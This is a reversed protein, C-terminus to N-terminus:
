ASDNNRNASVIENDPTLVSITLESCKISRDKLVSQLESKRAELQKKIQENLALFEAKLNGQETLTLQIRLGDLVSNKLDITVQKAGAFSESRVTSVIRELDAIHLIARAQPASTNTEGTKDSGPIVVPVWAPDGESDSEGSFNQQDDRKADKAEVSADKKGEATKDASTEGDGDAAQKESRSSDSTQRAADMFKSFAGQNAGEAAKAASANQATQIQTNRTKVELRAADSEEPKAREVRM